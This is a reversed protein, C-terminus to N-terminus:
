ERVADARLLSVLLRPRKKRERSGVDRGSAVFRRSDRFRAM